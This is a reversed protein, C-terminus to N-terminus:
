SRDPVSMLAELREELGRGLGERAWEGGLDELMMMGERDGTGRDSATRGGERTLIDRDQGCLGIGTCGTHGTYGSVRPIHPPPEAVSCNTFSSLPITAAPTSALLDTYSIFSLRKQPPTPSPPHSLSTPHICPSGAAYPSGATTPIVSHQSVPSHIHTTMKTTGVTTTANLNPTASTATHASSQLQSLSQSAPLLMPPQEATTTTPSGQSGDTTSVTSYYVSTPTSASPSPHPQNNPITKPPSMSPTLASPSTQITLRQQQPQGASADKPSTSPTLIPFPLPPLPASPSGPVSLLLSTRPGATSGPPSRIATGTPSPSRSRLSWNPSAFGSGGPRFPREYAPTVVAIQDEEMPSASTLVAAATDLVSPVNQELQETTKSRPIRHPNLPHIQSLPPSTTGLPEIDREFIASSSSHASTPSSPISSPSRSGVRVSGTQLHQSTHNSLRHERHSPTLLTSNSTMRRLDTPPTHHGQSSVM